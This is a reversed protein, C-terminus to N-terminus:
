PRRPSPVLPNHTSSQALTVLPGQRQAARSWDKLLLSLRFHFNNYLFLSFSPPPPPPPPTSILSNETGGFYFKGDIAVCRKMLSISPPWVSPSHASKLAVSMALTLTFDWRTTRRFTCPVTAGGQQMFSQRKWSEGASVM